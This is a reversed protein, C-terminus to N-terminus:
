LRRSSQLANNIKKAFEERDDIHLLIADCEKSIGYAKEVRLKKSFIIAVNHSEIEKLLALKEVQRSKGEIDNSTLKVEEIDNLPIEIDGFLGYKLYLQNEDIVSYRQRIAKIHGLIQIAAYGSSITLVWAVTVNWRILLIHFVFTEILIIFVIVGLLATIGNEKYNTFGNIPKRIKKWTFLAYYIMAIEFTFVKAIKPYGVVRIASEKLILYFDRNKNPNIKFERVTHYVNYLIVSLFALEIVPLLYTKVLDLHSKQNEPLLFSALIVGVVFLPVVTINPINKKRILLFYALPATLTLDYTIGIALDPNKTLIPSLALFISTLIIFIPLGYILFQERDIQLNM